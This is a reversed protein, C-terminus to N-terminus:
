HHTVKCKDEKRHAQVDVTALMAAAELADLVAPVDELAAVVVDAVDGLM